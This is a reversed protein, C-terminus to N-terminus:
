LYVLLLVEHSFEFFSVRAVSSNLMVADGVPATFLPRACFVASKGYARLKASWCARACFIERAATDHAAFIGRPRWRAIFRAGFLRAL